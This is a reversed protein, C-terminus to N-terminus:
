IAGIAEHRELTLRATYRQFEVINRYPHTALFEPGTLEVYRQLFMGRAFRPEWPAIMGVPEVGDLLAWQAGFTRMLDRKETALMVLDTPKVSPPAPWQGGLAPIVVAEVAEERRRYEPLLAKLPSSVDGLYAEAADHVLRDLAEEAPGHYSALVCHQAVSYFERCQGTFRCLNSLAHAVDVVNVMDPHPALLDFEIGSYTIITPKGNLPPSPPLTGKFYDRLYAADEEETRTQEANVLARHVRAVTGEPLGTSRLFTLVNEHDESAGEGELLGKIQENVLWQPNDDDLDNSRDLVTM